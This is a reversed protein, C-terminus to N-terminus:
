YDVELNDNCQVAWSKIVKYENKYIYYRYKFLSFFDDNSVIHFLHYVDM